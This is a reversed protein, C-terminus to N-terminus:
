LIYYRVAIMRDAPGQEKRDHVTLSVYRMTGRFGAYIREKRFAGNQHRFQRTMGFDLIYVTRRHVGDIGICMNSPKVDRHLYGQDHVAKLGAVAQQGVRLVTSISLKKNKRKRRLDSLNKGLMEMVIYMLSNFNGSAILHPAHQTGRLLILVKQELIM